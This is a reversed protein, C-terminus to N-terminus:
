WIRKWDSPYKHVAQTTAYHTSWLSTHVRKLYSLWLWPLRRSLSSRYSRWLSELLPCDRFLPWPFPWSLEFLLRHGWWGYQIIVSQLLIFRMRGPSRKKDGKPLISHYDGKSLSYKITSKQFVTSRKLVTIHLSMRLTRSSSISLTTVMMNWLALSHCLRDLAFSSQREKLCSTNTRACLQKHIFRNFWAITNHYQSKRLQDQFHLEVLAYYKTM